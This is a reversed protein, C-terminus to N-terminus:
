RFFCHVPVVLRILLLLVFSICHQRQAASRSATRSYASGNFMEDTLSYISDMHASITDLEKKLGAAGKALKKDKLQRTITDARTLAAAALDNLSSTVAFVAMTAMQRWVRMRSASLHKLWPVLTMNFLSEDYLSETREAVVTLQTWFQVWRQPFGRVRQSPPAVTSQM